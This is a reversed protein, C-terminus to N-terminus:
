GIQTAAFDLMQSVTDHCREYGRGSGNFAGAADLALNGSVAPFVFITRETDPKADGCAFRNLMVVIQKAAGDLEGGPKTRVRLFLLNQYRVDNGFQAFSFCQSELVEAFNFEFTELRRNPRM